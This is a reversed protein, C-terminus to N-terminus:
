EAAAVKAAKVRANSYGGSRMLCSKGCGCSRMPLKFRRWRSLSLESKVANTEDANLIILDGTNSTVTIAFDGACDADDGSWITTDACAASIDSVSNVSKLRSDTATGIHTVRFGAYRLLAPVTPSDAM